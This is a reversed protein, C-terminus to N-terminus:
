FMQQGTTTELTKAGKKFIPTINAHKLIGPFTGM